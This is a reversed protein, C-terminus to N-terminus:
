LLAEKEDFFLIKTKKYPLFEKIKEALKRLDGLILLKKINGNIMYCCQYFIIEIDEQTFNSKKLLQSLNAKLQFFSIKLNKSM